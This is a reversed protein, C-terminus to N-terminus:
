QVPRSETCLTEMPMTAQIRPQAVVPRRVDTVRHYLDLTASVMTEVDFHTRVRERAAQGYRRRLSDDELLTNIAGALADSDGPPVTLGTQGNLSVFPVGSDLWTNIVPKACAMAELQVIGFAESRATSPLVFLDCARFYPLADPLDGLLQVRESLDLRAIEAELAPRLRGEGVILLRANSRVQSMARLLVEFGKYYVLRGLALLLPTGHRTRIEKVVAEDCAEHADPEIGFPITVCRPRHRALVPSHRALQPTATIIADAHSLARHQLPGILAGLFRQRVIDSHYTCIFRGRFGSFLYALLASPHPTHIHLLDATSQNIVKFLGPSVPAGAVRGLTSLRRVAVGDINEVSDTQTENAVVVELDVEENLGRALAQLHTEIGGRIPPYYKGIQLVKLKRSRM